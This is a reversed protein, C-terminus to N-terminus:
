RAVFVYNKLYQVTNCTRLAGIRDLVYNEVFGRRGVLVTQESQGALGTCQSQGFCWLCMDSIYCGKGYDHAEAKLTFIFVTLLTPLEVMLEIRLSSGLRTVSMTIFSTYTQVCAVTLVASEVTIHCQRERERARERM